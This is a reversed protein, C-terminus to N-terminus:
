LAGTGAPRLSRMATLSVVVSCGNYKPSSRESALARQLVEVADTTAYFADAEEGAVQEVICLSGPPLVARVWTTWPARWHVMLQVPLEEIVVFKQGAIVQRPREETM